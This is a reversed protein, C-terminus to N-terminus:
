SRVSVMDTSVNNFMDYAKATITYTGRTSPTKWVCSYPFVTDTCILAGNVYVETKSIGSIDTASVDISVFSNRKVTANNAPSTISVKPATTDTVTHTFTFTETRAKPEDFRHLDIVIQYSGGPTNMPPTIWSDFTSVDMPRIISKQTLEEVYWGQPVSRVTVGYDGNNCGLSDNNLAALHFIVTEGPVGTKSSSGDYKFIDENRTCLESLENAKISSAQSLNAFLSLLLVLTLTIAKQM